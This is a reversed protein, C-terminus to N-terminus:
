KDPFQRFMEIIAYELRKRATGPEQQKRIEAGAVGVWVPVRTAGDILVVLLAGKPVNQLTPLARDPDERWVPDVMDIGAVFFVQLDPDTGALTMGRKGLERDVQKKVVSDADFDPPEWQGFPDNVIQASELWTYTKYNSFDTGPRTKGVVEIDTTDVTACAMVLVAVFLM